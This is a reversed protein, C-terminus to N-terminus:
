SVPIKRKQIENTEHGFKSQLYNRLNYMSNNIKFKKRINKRHTKVTDPSVYLYAAIEETKLGNKILSAVRLETSTLTTLLETDSVLGSTLDKMHAALMTLESYRALSQDEQLKEIIPLILARIKEVIGRETEQRTREVNQALVSLAHNTEMLERSLKELRSSHALLDERNRRLDEEAKKYEWEIKQTELARNLCHALLEATVPKELLDFAGLRIAKIAKEKEPGPTMMIIKADPCLEVIEPILDIRNTEPMILDFLILNYFSYRLKDLVQLPNSIGEVEIGWTSILSKTFKGVEPDDEVILLLANENCAKMPPRGKRQAERSSSTSGKAKEKNKILAQAGTM